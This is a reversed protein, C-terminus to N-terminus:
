EDIGPVYQLPRRLEARKWNDLLESRHEAIWLRLIPLAGPPLRGALLEGTEIVVTAQFGRYRVHIHPPPHDRWHMQIVFGLFDLDDAHCTM